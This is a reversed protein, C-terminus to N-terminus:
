VSNRTCRAKSGKTRVEFQSWLDRSLGLPINGFQSAGQWQALTLIVKGEPPLDEDQALNRWDDPVFSSYFYHPNFM